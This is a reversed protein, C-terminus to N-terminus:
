ENPQLTPDACSELLRIVHTYGGTSRKGTDELATGHERVDVNAGNQLLLRSIEM